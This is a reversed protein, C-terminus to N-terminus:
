GRKVWWLAAGGLAVAGLAVLGVTMASTGDEPPPPPPPPRYTDSKQTAKMVEYFKMGTAAPPAFAKVFSRLWSNLSLGTIRPRAGSSLGASSTAVLGWDVIAEPPPFAFDAADEGLPLAWISAKQAATGTHDIDPQASWTSYKRTNNGCTRSKAGKHKKWRAPPFVQWYRIAAAKLAKLEYSDRVLGDPDDFKDYAWDDAGRGGSGNTDDLIVHLVYRVYAEKYHQWSSPGKLKIYVSRDLTSSRCTGEGGPSMCIKGICAPAAGATTLPSMYGMGAPNGLPSYSM